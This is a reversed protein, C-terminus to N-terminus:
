PKLVLPSLTNEGDNKEAKVGLLNVLLGYVELNNVLGLQTQRIRPGSAILMGHMDPLEPDFGHQGLPGKREPNDSVSFGLDALCVIDPIRRHSGFRFRKPMEAKPWCTAHPLTSLAAMGGETSEGNLRVGATAGLWEWRADPFADLATKVQIVNQPEVLAMGHDSVIVLTTQVWLDRQKLAEVLRGISQDVKQTASRVAESDPGAAHGASDVDSFYLTVFDPRLAEPRSLWGWLTEFRAEHTMEGDYRLWDNPMMGQIPAESGPWFLTSAVKGQQRLTVWLPRAEQWWVPNEVAERSGLTFRQTTAPDTMTNNVIGHHDPTQGTVLTVHNPFTLSPFASILGRAQAGQQALHFLHPTAAESMYSPKFGDLSVLIVLPKQPHAALNGQAFVETSLGGWCIMVTLLASLSVFKLIFSWSPETL